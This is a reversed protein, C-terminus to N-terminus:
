FWNAAGAGFLVAISILSVGFIVSRLIKLNLYYCVAYLLRSLTYAWVAHAVLTPSALSMVSFILTIVFLGLSENSNAVTRTVRFLLDDHDVPVSSGPVHKRKIGVVDAALLQGFLLIVLAGLAIVTTSYAEFIEM